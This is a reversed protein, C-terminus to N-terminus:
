VLKKSKEQPKGKKKSLTRKKSHTVESKKHFFHKKSKVSYLERCTFNRGFSQEKEM